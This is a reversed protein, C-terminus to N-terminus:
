ASHAEVKRKEILVPVFLILIVIDHQGQIDLNVKVFEEELLCGIEM